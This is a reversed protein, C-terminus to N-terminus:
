FFNQSINKKDFSFFIIRCKKPSSPVIVNVMVVNPMIAHLVLTDLSHCCMHLCRKARSIDNQHINWRLLFIRFNIMTPKSRRNSLLFIFVNKRVKERARVRVRVKERVCERGRKRANDYNEMKKCSHFCKKFIDAIEIKDM